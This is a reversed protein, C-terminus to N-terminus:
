EGPSAPEFRGRDNHEWPLAEASPSEDLLEIIYHVVPFDSLNKLRHPTLPATNGVTRYLVFGPDANQAIGWDAQGLEQGRMSGAQAYLIVHDHHHQHYECHDGPQLTMEWVRVRANEFLVVSGVAPSYVAESM